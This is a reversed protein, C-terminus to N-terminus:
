LCVGWPFPSDEDVEIWPEKGCFCRNRTWEQKMARRAARGLESQLAEKTQSGRLFREPDRLGMKEQGDRFM